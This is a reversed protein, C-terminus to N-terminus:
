KSFRTGCEFMARSIRREMDMFCRIIMEVDDDEDRVGLRDCLRVYADLMDFYDKECKSGPLFLNDVGDVWEDRDGVGRVTDYVRDALSRKM